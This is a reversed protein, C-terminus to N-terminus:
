LVPVFQVIRTSRECANRRLADYQKITENVHTNVHKAVNLVASHTQQAVPGELTDMVLTHIRRDLELNAEETAHEVNHNM